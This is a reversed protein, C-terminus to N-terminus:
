AIGINNHSFQSNYLDAYLGNKELLSTHNGKEIIKGHKMVLILDANKITSLRHAIVFNTRGKMLLTMANQIQIETRTDVSSTAEDLILIAPNALLARAITLLQKQGQSINTAEENLITDYGEPLTRIFHDAEAAKAAAIVEEDTSDLRGYAINDRISGKFMWTDQLVMGFVARLDERKMDQINIGDITISGDNIDYFRMLLNVITTKGAGTPGVIAVTQGPNVHINMDDILPSDQKYSFDVHNFQIFGKPYQILKGIIKEKIDETLKVLNFDDKHMGKDVLVYGQDTKLAKSDEYCTFEQTPLVFGKDTLIIEPHITEPELEEADLLEFVREAAAMTLQLTNSISATQRIPQSFQRTYSIFSSIYGVKLSGDIVLKVGVISVFVYGINNVFTMIPMIIGSIFQAKWGSKYLKDNIENFTNISEQERGYAKVIRHGTYMEEVHGSLKGLAVQQGKFYKQSAKLIPISIIISLPLTALVILTLQWSLTLMMWVIGILLVVSTIIQTISQSLTTSIMDIDNTIRSLIDGHTKSDFYKLPLKSLKHNVDKRLKFVTKQSVTAMLYQQIYAFVASFVYLGILVLIINWFLYHYDIKYNFNFNKGILLNETIKNFGDGMIKPGRISFITSFIATILIILLRWKFPSLYKCLRVFTGKFDKAKEVPRAFAPGEHKSNPKQQKGSM